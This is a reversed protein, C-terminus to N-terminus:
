AIVDDAHVVLERRRRRRRRIIAVVQIIPLTGVAEGATVVLLPTPMITVAGGSVAVAVVVRRRRALPVRVSNVTNTLHEAVIVGVRAGDGSQSSEFTYTRTEVHMSFRSISYYFKREKKKM